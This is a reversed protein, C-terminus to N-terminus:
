NKNHKPVFWVNEGDVIIRDYLISNTCGQQQAEIVPEDKLLKGSCVVSAGCITIISKFFSRRNM